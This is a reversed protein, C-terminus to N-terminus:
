QWETENEESDSQAAVGFAEMAQRIAGYTFGRRALAAIVKQRDDRDNMRNYYRKEILALAQQFDEREVGAAAEQATERSVGRRLLEQEVRRRSYGRYESLSNAARRAYNEDDLLGVERLRAVVAAAVEPPAEAALKKELERCAYDRTGLLYLAKDHARDYQSRVLLATLQAPTIEGGVRYSSTDFTGVDVEVETQEGAGEQGDLVLRYLHRRLRQAETIIM